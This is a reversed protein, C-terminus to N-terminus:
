SRGFAPDASPFHSFQRNALMWAELASRGEVGRHMDEQRIRYRNSRQKEKSRTTYGSRSFVTRRPAICPIFGYIARLQPLFSKSDVCHQLRSPVPLLAARGQLRRM